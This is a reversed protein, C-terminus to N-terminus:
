DNRVHALSEGEGETPLQLYPEALGSHGAASARDFNGHKDV